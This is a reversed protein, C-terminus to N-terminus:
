QEKNTFPDSCVGCTIAGLEAVGPAVRIKRPKSCSCSLTLRDSRRPGETDAEADGSTDGGADDGTSSPPLVPALVFGLAGRRRARQTQEHAADLAAIEAAYREATAPTMSTHNLGSVNAPDREVKLGLEEALRAFEKNHYRGGRSTDQIKRVHALAHAAEHLLTGVIEEAGFEFCEGTILVEPRRGDAVVWRAPSWHGFKVFGPRDDGPGLIMVVDPIEPHLRRITAWCNELAALVGSTPVPTLKATQTVPAESKSAAM